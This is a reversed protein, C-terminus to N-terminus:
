CVTLGPGSWISDHYSMYIIPHAEIKVAVKKHMGMFANQSELTDPLHKFRMNTQNIFAATANAVSMMTRIRGIGIRQPRFTGFRCLNSNIPTKAKPNTYALWVEEKPM